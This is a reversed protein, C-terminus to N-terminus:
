YEKGRKEFSKGYLFNESFCCLLTTGRGFTEASHCLFCKDSVKSIGEGKKLNKRHWMNESVCRLLTTGRGFNESSHSLFMEM